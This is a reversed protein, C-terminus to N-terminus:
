QCAQSLTRKIITKGTGSGNKYAEVAVKWGTPPKKMSQKFPNEDQLSRRTQNIYSENLEYIPAIVLHSRSFSSNNVSNIAIFSGNCRHQTSTYLTGYTPEDTTWSVAAYTDNIREVTVALSDAGNLKDVVMSAGSVGAVVVGVIVMGLILSRKEM